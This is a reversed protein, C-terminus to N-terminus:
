WPEWSDIFTQKGRMHMTKKKKKKLKIKETEQNNIFKANDRGLHNKKSPPLNTISKIQM